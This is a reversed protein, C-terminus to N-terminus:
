SMRRWCPTASPLRSKRPSGGALADRSSALGAQHRDTSRSGCCRREPCVLHEHIIRTHAPLGAPSLLHLDEAIFSYRGVDAGLRARRDALVSAFRRYPHAYALWQAAITIGDPAGLTHRVGFAVRATEGDRSATQSRTTLSGPM